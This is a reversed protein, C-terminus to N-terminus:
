DSRTTIRLDYMRGMDGMDWCTWCLPALAVLRNAPQAALAILLVIGVRVRTVYYWLVFCLYLPLGNRINNSWQFHSPSQLTTSGYHRVTDMPITAAAIFFMSQVMSAQTLQNDLNPQPRELLLRPRRQLQLPLCAPMCAPVAQLAHNAHSSAGQLSDPFQISFRYSSSSGTTTLLICM